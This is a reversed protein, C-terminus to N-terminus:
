YYQHVRWIKFYIKWKPFNALRAKERGLTLSSHQWLEDRRAVDINTIVMSQRESSNRIWNFCSVDKSKKRVRFNCVNIEINFICVMSLQLNWNFAVVKVLPQLQSKLHINVESILVKPLQKTKIKIIRAMKLQIQHGLIWQITLEEEM